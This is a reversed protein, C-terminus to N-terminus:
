SQGREPPQEIVAPVVVVPVPDVARNTTPPVSATVQTRTFMALAAGVVSMILAQNEPSLRLGFGIALAIVAAFGGSIAAVQGDRRVVVAVIGGTVAALAANVLSQQEVTWDLWFASVLRVTTALFMLILAPDRKFLM